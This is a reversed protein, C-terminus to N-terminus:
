LPLVTINTVYGSVAAGDGTIVTSCSIVTANMGLWYFDLHAYLHTPDGYLSRAGHETADVQHHDDAHQDDGDRSGAHGTNGRAPLRDCIPHSLAEHRRANGAQQPSRSPKRRVCERADEAGRELASRRSLACAEYRLLLVLSLPAGLDIVPTKAVPSALPALANQNLGCALMKLLECADDLHALGVVNSRLAQRVRGLTGLGGM